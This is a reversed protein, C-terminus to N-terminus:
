VSVNVNLNHTLGHLDILSDLWSKNFSMVDQQPEPQSDPTPRPNRLKGDSMPATMTASESDAAFNYTVLNNQM